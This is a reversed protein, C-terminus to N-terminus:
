SRLVRVGEEWNLVDATEIATYNFSDIETSMTPFQEHLYRVLEIDQQYIAMTLINIGNHTKILADAGKDILYKVLSLNRYQCALMVPTSGRENQQNINILNSSVLVKVLDLSCEPTQCAAHLPYNGSAQINLVEPRNVMFARVDEINGDAIANEIYYLKDNMRDNMTVVQLCALLCLLAFCCVVIL